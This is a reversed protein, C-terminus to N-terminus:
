RALAPRYWLDVSEGVSHARSVGNVGRAVTLEQTFGTVGSLLYLRGHGSLGTLWPLTVSQVGAEDVERAWARVRATNSLTDASDAVASWGAGLPAGMNNGSDASWGHLVLVWWGVEASVTSTLTLEETASSGSVMEEVTPGGSGHAIVSVAAYRQAVSFTATQTGTAGSAVLTKTADEFSNAEDTLAGITMGAPLAYTGTASSSSWACILMDGSNAATVSPAVHSVTASSGYNGAGVFEASGAVAGVATVTMREGLVEIDVPVEAVDTSWAPGVPTRITLTTDASAADVAVYSGDPDLRWEYAVPTLDEPYSTIELVDWSDAPTTNAQPTYTYPGFQERYGQVLLEVAGVTSLQPPLGEVRIRAGSDVTLWADILEPSVGLNTSVSPVRSGPRAGLHVLWGSAEVLDIDRELNLTGSGTYTGRRAISVDDRAVISSGGTRSITLSNRLLRDDLIPSFPNSVQGQLGDLVLNPPQNYLSERTRYILGSRETDEYLIGGDADQADTLLDVLTAVRQAGVRASTGRDGVFAVSIGEEGCLRNIREVATEGSWGDAADGQTSDLADVFALHGMAIGDIGASNPVQVGTPQGVSGALSGSFGFGSGGIPFYAVTWDINAGNQQVFLRVHCWQGVFFDTAADAVVSAGFADYGDILIDTGDISIQWLFVTGTTFVWLITTQSATAEPIYVYWDAIWHGSFPGAVPGALSGTSKFRMLSKSGLLSDESAFDIEGFIALPHGGDLGSAIQQSERMDEMPWYSRVTIDSSQSRRLASELPLQGASLRRLIGALGVDTRAEGVDFGAAGQQESLDGWPWVAEWSDATGQVRYARRTLEAGGAMQWLLGTSDVFAPAGSAQDVFVPDAVVTGDIGDRVQAAYVSAQPCRNDTQTSENGVVLDTTSAFISTVGADTIEPGLQTWPGTMSEGSYFTVTWGGAGNDVDLTTRIVTRASFPMFPTATLAQHYTGFTGDESWELSLKADRQFSLRWSRGGGPADYVSMLIGDITDYSMAGLCVDIRVDIDGTVVYAPTYDVQARGFTQTALRLRTSGVDLWLRAPTGVDVYPYYASGPNDPTYDGSNNDLRLSVSTPTVDDSENQRGRSVSLSQSLFNESADTWTWTSPDSAPDVGFAFEIGAPIEQGYPFEPEAIATYNVNAISAQKATGLGATTALGFRAYLATVTIPTALTGFTLWPGRVGGATEFFVFGDSERIRLWRHATADYAASAVLNAVAGVTSYAYLTGDSVLFYLADDLDTATQTVCLAYCDLDPDAVGPDILEV